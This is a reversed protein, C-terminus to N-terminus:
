PSVVLRLSYRPRAHGLAGREVEMGVPGQVEHRCGARPEIGDRALSNLRRSMDPATGEIRDYLWLRGDVAEEVLM